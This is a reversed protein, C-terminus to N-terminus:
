ELFYPTLRHKKLVKVIDHHCNLHMLTIKCSIIISIVTIIFELYIGKPADRKVPLLLIDDSKVHSLPIIEEEEELLQPQTEKIILTYYM